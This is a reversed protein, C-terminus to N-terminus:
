ENWREEELIHSDREGEKGGEFELSFWIPYGRLHWARSVGDAERVCFFIMM